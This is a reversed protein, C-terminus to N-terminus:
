CFALSEGSTLVIVQLDIPLGLCVDTCLIFEPFANTTKLDAMHKSM